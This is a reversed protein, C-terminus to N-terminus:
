WDFFFTKIRFIWGLSKNLKTPLKEWFSKKVNGSDHQLHTLHTTFGANLAFKAVTRVMGHGIWSVSLFTTRRYNM